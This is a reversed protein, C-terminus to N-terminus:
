FDMQIKTYSKPIIACVIKYLIIFSEAFIMYGIYTCIRKLTDYIHKQSNINLFIRFHMVFMCFHLQM